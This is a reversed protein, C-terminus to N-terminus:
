VDYSAGSRALEVPGAFAARADALQEGPRVFPALHTLVLRGVGALAAHEGAERGTLHIGPPPSPDSPWTAECLLLDCGRALDVLAPTAATDGSYVLSRGGADLRVAHTEVPHRVEATTVTFPGLALTGPGAERFAFVGDLGNTPPVEYASRIRQELGVPGHVPVPPPVGDPHYRLAYSYGLLDLCHDAHLHTVWVADVDRLDCHRQLQGLAGNGLDLVLRYGDHEVLYGSCPSEPGPYSGSCGLVTLRM